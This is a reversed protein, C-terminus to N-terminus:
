EASTIVPEGRLVAVAFARLQYTYTADGRVREWRRGEPTRIRLLSFAQPALYNLVRMEGREGIAKASVRLPQASWLSARIRGTAGGPFRFDATMARDVDPAHLRARAGTVKPEGQGLMRICNIAYCGADMTAGGALDFRYRIDSFRPLPFCLSAEVHRLEGIDGAAILMRRALPHYRYHFAEMVVIGAAKAAEAVEVAEVENSTFPKECLVHKGAAIARLTWPAHLSNPLPNYIADVEPDAILAQYTPHVVPIGHRDAFERARAPERAAVATVVVEPVQRAPRILATPTIRAAGLAGVRVVGM